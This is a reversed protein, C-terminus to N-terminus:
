NAAAEYLGRGRREAQDASVLRDLGSRVSERSGASEPRGLVQNIEGARLPGEAKMLVAM